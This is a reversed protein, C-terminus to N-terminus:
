EERGRRDGKVRMESGEGTVEEGRGDGKGRMESEEGTM